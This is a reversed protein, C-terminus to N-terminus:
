DHYEQGRDDGVAITDDPRNVANSDIQDPDQLEKEEKAADPKDGDQNEGADDNKEQDDDALPEVPAVDEDAAEM